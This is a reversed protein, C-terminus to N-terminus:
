RSPRKASTRTNSKARPGAPRKRSTAKKVVKGPLLNEGNGNREAAVERQAKAIGPVARRKAGPKSPAGNESRSARLPTETIPDLEIGFVEGLEADALRKSKGRSTATSMAQEADAEILEEHNVGRLTFLGEQRHTVVEMVHESLRGQLLELLSGIQGSCRKKVAEWKRRPLTKITVKVDYLDSGFVKAEVRGKAVKKLRGDAEADPLGDLVSDAESALQVATVQGSPAFALEMPVGISGRRSDPAPMPKGPLFERAFTAKGAANPGATM